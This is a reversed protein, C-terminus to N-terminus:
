SRKRESVPICLNPPATTQERNQVFPTCIRHGNFSRENGTVKAGEKAADKKRKKRGKGKKKKKREKRRSGRTKM